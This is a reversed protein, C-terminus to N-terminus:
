ILRAPPPTDCREPLRDPSISLFARYEGIPSRAKQLSFARVLLHSDVKSERRDEKRKLVEISSVCAISRARREVHFAARSAAYGRHLQRPGGVFRATQLDIACNGVLLLVTLAVRFRKVL